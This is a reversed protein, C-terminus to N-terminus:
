DEEEKKRSGNMFRTLIRFSFNASFGIMIISLVLGIPRTEKDRKQKRAEVTNKPVSKIEETGWGIPFTTELIKLVSDAQRNKENYCHITDDGNPLPQRLVAQVDEIVKTENYYRVLKVSDLNLAFTLITSVILIETIVWKFYTWWANGVLDGFLAEIQTTLEKKTTLNKFTLLSAIFHSKNKSMKRLNEESLRYKGNNDLVCGKNELANLVAASFSPENLYPPFSGLIAILPYGYIDDYLAKCNIAKRIRYRLTRGRLQTVSNVAEVIIFCVLGLLLYGAVVKVLTGVLVSFLDFKEM